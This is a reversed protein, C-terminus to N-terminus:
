DYSTKKNRSNTPTVNMPVAFTKDSSSDNSGTKSVKKSKPENLLGNISLSSTITTKNNIVANSHAITPASSLSTLINAASVQNLILPSALTSSSGSVIVQTTAPAVVGTTTNPTSEVVKSQGYSSLTIIPNNDFIGGSTTTEGDGQNMVLLPSENGTNVVQTIGANNSNVIIPTGIPMPTGINTLTPTKISLGLIPSFNSNLLPTSDVNATPMPSFSTFVSAPNNSTLLPSNLMSPGSPNPITLLPSNLMSPGSPNAIFPSKLMVTGSPNPNAVLPSAMMATGSPNPTTIISPPTPTVLNNLSVVNNITSLNNDTVNIVGNVPNNVIIPVSGYQKNANEM